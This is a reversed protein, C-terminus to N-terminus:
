SRLARVPIYNSIYQPALGTCHKLLDSSNLTSETSCMSPTHFCIMAIIIPM